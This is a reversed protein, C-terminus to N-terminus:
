EQWFSAPITRINLNLSQAPRGLVRRWMEKLAGGLISFMTSQEVLLGTKGDTAHSGLRVVKEAPIEPPKGFMRIVTDFSKLRNEYGEVAEIHTLLETVMMGPNFAYVGM